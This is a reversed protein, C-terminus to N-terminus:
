LDLSMALAPIDEWGHRLWFQHGMANDNAVLLIARQLGAARLGEVCTRLLLAGIGRGRASPAVALHYIFGRRGDHGCLAAGIIVGGEEVVQSLGPNRELYGAIEARGDGRAIEVGEVSEWLAIARDYDAIQFARITM